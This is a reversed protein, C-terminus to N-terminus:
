HYTCYKLIAHVKIVSAFAKTQFTGETVEPGRPFKGNCVAHFTGPYYRKFFQKLLGSFNRISLINGWINYVVQWKCSKKLLNM